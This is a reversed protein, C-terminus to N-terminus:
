ILNVFPVGAWRAIARGIVAAWLTEVFLDNRSYTPDGMAHMSAETVLKIEEGSRLAVKVGRSVYDDTAFAIVAALEFRPITRGDALTALDGTAVLQKGTRHSVEVGAASEFWVFGSYSDYQAEALGRAGLAAMVAGHEAEPVYRWALQEAGGDGLRYIMAVRRGDLERDWAQVLRGPAAIAQEFTMPM